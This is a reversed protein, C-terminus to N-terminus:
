ENTVKISKVIAHVCITDQIVIHSIELSLRSILMPKINKHSRLQNWYHQKSDDVVDSSFQCRSEDMQNDKTTPLVCNIFSLNTRDFCEKDEYFDYFDHLSEALMSLGEYCISIISQKDMTKPYKEYLVDSTQLYAIIPDHLSQAQSDSLRLFIISREVSGHATFSTQPTVGYICQVDEFNVIWPQKEDSIDIFRGRHSLVKGSKESTTQYDYKQLPSFTLKM